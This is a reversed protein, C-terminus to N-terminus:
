TWEWDNENSRRCDNDQRYVIFTNKFLYGEMSLEQQDTWDVKTREM